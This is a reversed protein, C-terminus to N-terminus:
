YRFAPNLYYTFNNFMVYIAVHVIISYFFDMHTCAKIKYMECDQTYM